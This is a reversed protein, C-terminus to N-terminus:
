VPAAGPDGRELWKDKEREERLLEELYSTADKGEFLDRVVESAKVSAEARQAKGTLSERVSESYERLEYLFRFALMFETWQSTQQLGRGKEILTQLLTKLPVAVIERGRHASIVIMLNRCIQAVLTSLVLPGVQDQNADIAEKVVSAPYETVVTDDELAVLSASRKQEGGGVSLIAGEGLVTRPTAIGVLGQATKVGLTGQELVGINRASDGM